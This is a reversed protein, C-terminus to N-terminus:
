FYFLFPPCVIYGFKFASIALAPMVLVSSAFLAQIDSEAKDNFILPFTM